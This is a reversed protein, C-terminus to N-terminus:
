LESRLTSIEETFSQVLGSAKEIALQKLRNEEVLREIIEDHAMM